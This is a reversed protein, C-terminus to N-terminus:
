VAEDYDTDTWAIEVRYLRGRQGDTDILTSPLERYMGWRRWQATRLLLLHGLWDELRALDDLTVLILSFSTGGSRRASRIIRRRGAYDRVEADVSRTSTPPPWEGILSLSEGSLDTFWARQPDLPLNVIVTWGGGGLRSAGDRRAM